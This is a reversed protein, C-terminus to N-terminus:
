RSDVHVPVVKCSWILGGCPVALGCLEALSASMKEDRNSKRRKKAIDLVHRDTENQATDDGGGNAQSLPAFKNLLNLTNEGRDSVPSQSAIM